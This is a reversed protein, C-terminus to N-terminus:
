EQSTRALTQWSSGGQHATPPRCDATPLEGHSRSRIRETISLPIAGNRRIGGKLQAFDVIEEVANRLACRANANVRYLLQCGIMRGGKAWRIATVCMGLELAEDRCRRSVSDELPPTETTDAGIPLWVLVSVDQDLCGVLERIKNWHSKDPPDIFVFNANRIAPDHPDAATDFVHAEPFTTRLDNNPASATEWLWLEISKGHRNCVERAFWASGPYTGGVTPLEHLRACEAWFAVHCNGSLLHPGAVLGIGQRWECGQSLPNKAYGAFIDVYKFPRSDSTPAVTENLAAILAPHKCIDGENGAKGKHDYIEIM